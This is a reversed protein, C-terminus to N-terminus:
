AWEPVRCGHAVDWTKGQDRSLRLANCGETSCLDFWTPDTDRREPKWAEWTHPEGNLPGCDPCRHPRNRCFGCRPREAAISHQNLQESNSIETM